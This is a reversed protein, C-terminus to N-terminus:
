AKASLQRFVGLRDTQQRHGRLLGDEFDYITLGSTEIIKGTAPFGPLDALHTGTWSWDLAVRDDEAIMERITFKQDPFPACSIRLREAFEGRTLTKGDWADGPDSRISYLPAIMRSVASVDRENWVRRMFEALHAKMAAPTM